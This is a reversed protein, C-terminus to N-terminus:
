GQTGPPSPFQGPQRGPGPPGAFAQAIHMWEQALPGILQLRTDTIHRRQTVVLCFDLAEGIIAQTAAAAGWTWVAGAPSRLEVRVEEAPPTLGRVTYSFPRARVGIHAVHQLRETAQRPVGLTDVIDQGHAWTEMLRATAFSLASMAPGFWPIRTKPDLQRFVELMAHRATRWWALLAPGPMSRGTELQRAMRERRDQHLIEATFRAPEGAAMTAVSDTTGLHSVQDRISWGVAPTQRDWDAERLGTLLHDLDDQEAQLDACIRVMDLM